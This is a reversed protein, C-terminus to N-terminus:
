QGCDRAIIHALVPERSVGKECNGGADPLMAGGSIESIAMDRKWRIPMASNAPATNTAVPACACVLYGFGLSSGLGYRNACPQGVIGALMFPPLHPSTM